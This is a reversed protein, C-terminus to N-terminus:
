TSETLWMLPAHTAGGDAMVDRLQDRRQFVKADELSTFDHCITAETPKDATRYVTSAVIGWGRRVEANKEFFARFADWDRVTVKIFVRHM